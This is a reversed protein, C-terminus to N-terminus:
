KETFNKGFQLKKITEEKFIEHTPVVFFLENSRIARRFYSNQQGKVAAKLHEYSLKLLQGWFRWETDPRLDNMADLALIKEM